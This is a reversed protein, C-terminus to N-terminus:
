LNRHAPSSLSVVEDAGGFVAMAVAQAAHQAELAPQGSGILRGAVQEM